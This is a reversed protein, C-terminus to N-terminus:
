AEQTHSNFLSSAAGSTFKIDGSDERFKVVILADHLQNKHCYIDASTTSDFNMALGIDKTWGHESYYSESVANQIIVRM